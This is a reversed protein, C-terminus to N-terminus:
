TKRVIWVDQEIGWHRVQGPIHEIIETTGSFFRRAWEPPHFASYVRHGEKVNGRVILTNQDFQQQESATLKEYFAAGQLTLMLIGGPASLRLLEQLWADHSPASLHTFVSLGYIAQFLGDPHPVPPQLNNKSFTVSPINKQCWAVTDANYDTGFVRSKAPLLEPLHRVIRAPGCGWDLVTMPGEPIHRMLTDAVWQATQRGGEYYKQYNLQFAEFLMYDPPLTVQPHQERFQRNASYNKIKGVGYKLWDLQHMLGLQRFPRTLKGTNM